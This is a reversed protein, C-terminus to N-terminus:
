NISNNSLLIKQIVHKGLYVFLYEENSTLNYDFTCTIENEDENFINLINSIFSLKITSELHFYNVSHLFIFYYGKSNKNITILRTLSDNIFTKVLKYDNINNELISNSLIFSNEVYNDEFCDIVEM